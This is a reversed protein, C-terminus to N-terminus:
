RLYADFSAPDPAAARAVARDTRGERVLEALSRELHAHLLLPEVGEDCAPLGGHTAGLM